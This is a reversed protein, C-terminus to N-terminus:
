GICNPRPRYPGRYKAAVKLEGADLQPREEWTLPAWSEGAAYWLFLYDIAATREDATDFRYVDHDGEVVQQMEFKGDAERTYIAVYPWQGLDWGDHGWSSIVSWGQREAVEMDDYGNGSLTYRGHTDVKHKRLKAATMVEITM